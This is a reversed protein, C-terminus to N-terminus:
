KTKWKRTLMLFITLIKTILIKMFANILFMQMVLLKDMLLKTADVGEDADVDVGEDADVDADVDLKILITM